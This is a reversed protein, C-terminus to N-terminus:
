NRAAAYRSRSTEHDFGPLIAKFFANQILKVVVEFTSVKPNELHGSVDARTAVEARPRNQLVRAVGGVMREYLKKPASKNRDQQPDYAVLDKFLPKVYGNIAGDHVTLESYFYFTGAVVDFRGFARLLDNMSTM